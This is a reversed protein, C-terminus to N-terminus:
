LAGWSDWHVNRAAPINGRGALKQGVKLVVISQFNV